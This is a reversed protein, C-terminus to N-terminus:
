LKRLFLHCTSGCWWCYRFVQDRDGRLAQEKKTGDTSHHYSKPFKPLLKRNQNQEWIIIHHLWYSVWHQDSAERKYELFLLPWAFLFFSKPVVLYQILINEASFLIYIIFFLSNVFSGRDLSLTLPWAFSFFFKASSPLSSINQHTM